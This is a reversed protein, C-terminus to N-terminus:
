EASKGGSLIRNRAWKDMEELNIMDRLSRQTPAPNIDDIYGSNIFWNLQDSGQNIAGVSGQFRDYLGQLQGQTLQQKGYNAMTNWDTPPIAQVNAPTPSAIKPISAEPQKIKVPTRKNAEKRLRIAEESLPNMM